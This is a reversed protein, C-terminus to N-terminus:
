GPSVFRIFQGKGPLKVWKIFPANIGIARKILKFGESRFTRHVM